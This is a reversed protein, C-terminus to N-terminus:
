AVSRKRLGSWLAEVIEKAQEYAPRYAANREARSFGQGIHYYRELSLGVVYTGAYSVAGKPILGGGMPIKGVLERAIARWGFAAAVISTVEGKQKLYGIPKESAAAIQFAMRIQNMTLFATDSAFEGVAWPLEILSPVLNPLATVLSFLANERATTRILRDVVTKRFVCFNSALALHLEPLADTVQEITREPDHRNFTFGNDPCPSGEECLVFDTQGSVRREMRHLMQQLARRKEVSPESSILFDEMAAYGHSSSALLGINIPRESARRVEDPNLYRLATRVQKLANLPM